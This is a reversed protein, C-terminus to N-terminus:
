YMKKRAKKYLGFDGGLLSEVVLDKHVKKREKTGVSM